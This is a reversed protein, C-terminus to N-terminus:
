ASFKGAENGWSDFGDRKERSFMDIRPGPSAQRVLSYFEDPKRSHERVKASFDLRLGLKELRLGGRHCFLVHETSYMWSYPTFGVNKVWTMVCQYKFGWQEALRLGMPLTKQTVWLYLHCDDDAPLEMAALEEETMTPYECGAQAPRFDRELKQFEWPPDIVICSYKGKPPPIRVKKLEEIKAQHQEARQKRIEKAAALIEKEGKAVIERQKEQPETSIDSAASVNVRGREVAEVLEPAGHEYVDKARYVSRQSIPMAADLAAREFQWKATQFEVSKRDGGRSLWSVAKAKVMAMQSTTLHRRHLNLSVVFAVLSGKENWERFSPAVGAKECALYRNRGDIISGDPHLWIPERLGNAEIDEALSLLDGDGMLPFISAVEHFQRDTM